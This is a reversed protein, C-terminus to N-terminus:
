TKQSVIPFFARCAILAGEVFWLAFGARIGSTWHPDRVVDTPHRHAIQGFDARRFADGHARGSVFGRATNSRYL